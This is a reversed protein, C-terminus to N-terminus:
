LKTNNVIKGWPACMVYCFPKYKTDLIKMFSAAEPDDDDDYLAYFELEIEQSSLSGMGDHTVSVTVSVLREDKEIEWGFTQSKRERSRNKGASLDRGDLFNLAALNTLWIMDGEM